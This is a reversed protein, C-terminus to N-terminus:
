EQCEAFMRFYKLCVILIHLLIVFVLIHVVQTLFYFTLVNLVGPTGGRSLEGEGEKIFVLM